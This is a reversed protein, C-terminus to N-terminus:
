PDLIFTEVPAVPKGALVQGKKTKMDMVVSFLTAINEKGTSRCIAAGDGVLEDRLMCQVVESNPQEEGSNRLLENIRELRFETDPIWDTSEVVSPDHPLVYHNTHAVVGAADMELKVIDTSSCELGTGGTLDAVLIHCASAVGAKELAEVAAARTPSEMVTRLALHCPLRDFSVGKAKIANLTCGVGKENMGIKGIIGAETVMHMCMGGREKAIKLVILTNAQETYWDWNQALISAQRGSWSLATCGDNFAGFAIETRVNLALIDLYGVDAGDAVGEMESVYLPWNAALYPQYQLAFKKVSPWDMKCRTEFLKQYFRICRFIQRKAARGHQLGIEHANGYCYVEEM